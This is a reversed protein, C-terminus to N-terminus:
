VVSKRDSDIAFALARRRRGPSNVLGEGAWDDLATTFTVAEFRNSAAFRGAADFDGAAYHDLAEWLAPIVAKPDPVTRTPATQASALIVGTICLGAVVGHLRGIM